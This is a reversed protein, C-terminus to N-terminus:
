LTVGLTEVWYQKNIAACEKPTRSPDTVADLAIVAPGHFGVKKVARAETIKMGPAGINTQGYPRDKEGLTAM